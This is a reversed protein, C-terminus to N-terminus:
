GFLDATWLKSGAISTRFAWVCLVLVVAIVLIMEDFYPASPNMTIPLNVFVDNVFVAAAFALIGLRTIMLAILGYTLM